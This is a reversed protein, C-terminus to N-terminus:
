IRQINNLKDTMKSPLYPSLYKEKIIEYNKRQKEKSLPNLLSNYSLDEEISYIFCGLSKFFKYLVGNKYLYVKVGHQLCTTINGVAQQRLHGFIAYSCSKIINNYDKLPLYTTLPLYSDGFFSYGKKNLIDAYKKLGYSLPVIVKRNEAIMAKLRFFIDIHNNEFSASNGVLINDGLPPPSYNSSTSKLLESNIYKIQFYPKNIGKQRLFIQENPLILSLYDIKTFFDSYNFQEKILPALIRRILSSLFYGLMLFRTKKRYLSIKAPKSSFFDFYKDRYFDWGWSSWILIIKDDLFKYFKGQFPLSHIILVVPNIEKIKENFENENKIFFVNEVRELTISFISDNEVVLYFNDVSCQDFFNIITDVFKEQKVLHVVKM